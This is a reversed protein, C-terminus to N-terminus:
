IENTFLYLLSWYSFILICLCKDEGSLVCSLETMLTEGIELRILHHFPNIPVIPCYGRPLNAMVEMQLSKQECYSCINLLSVFSLDTRSTRSHTKGRKSHELHQQITSSSESCQPIEITLSEIKYQFSYIFFRCIPFSKFTLEHWIIWFIVKM